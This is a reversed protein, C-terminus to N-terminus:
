QPTTKEKRSEAKTAREATHKRNPSEHPTEVICLSPHIHSVGSDVSFIVFFKKRYDARKV